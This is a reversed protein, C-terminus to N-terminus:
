IFNLQISDYNNNFILLTKTNPIISETNSIFIINENNQFYSNLQTNTSNITKLSETRTCDTFRDTYTLKKLGKVNTFTFFNTNDFAYGSYENCDIKFFSLCKECSYKNNISREYFSSKNCHICYLKELKSEFM